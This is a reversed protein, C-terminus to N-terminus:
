NETKTMWATSATNTLTRRATAELESRQPLVVAPNQRADNVATRVAVVSDKALAARRVAGDYMADVYIDHADSKIDDGDVHKVIAAKIDRDSMASRDVPKGEADIHGLIANASTMLAVRKAVQEGLGAAADVRAKEVAAEADKRATEAALKEREADKRANDRDAHAAAVTQDAAALKAEAQEARLTAAGLKTNAEDLKAQLDMDLGTEPVPSANDLPKARSDCADGQVSMDPAGAIAARVRSELENASLDRSRIVVEAASCYTVCIGAPAPAPELTTSTPMAADGRAGDAITVDEVDALLERVRKVLANQSLERSSIYVRPGACEDDEVVMVADDADLKLEATGARGVDVIALHNVVINRQIADYEGYVDHKGPTLELDVAYGVSLQRKGARRRLSDATTKDHIVAAIAVHTGDQKGPGLVTGVGLTRVNDPGVAVAPHNDTIPTGEFGDMSKADFVDDPLRLERRMGGDQTRYVQVGVRSAWGDLLLFGQPNERPSRLTGYDTRNVRAM